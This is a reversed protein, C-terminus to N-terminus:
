RPLRTWGSSPWSDGRARAPGSLAVTGRPYSDRILEAPASEICCHRVITNTCGWVQILNEAVVPNSFTREGGRSPPSLLFPLAAASVLRQAGRGRPSLLGLGWMVFSHGSSRVLSGTDFAWDSLPVAWLYPAVTRNV